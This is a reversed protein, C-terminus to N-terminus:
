VRGPPRLFFDPFFKPRATSEPRAREYGQHSAPVSGTRSVGSPMMVMVAFGARVASERMTASIPVPRAPVATAPAAVM